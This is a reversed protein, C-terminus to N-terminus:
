PYFRLQSCKVVWGNPSKEVIYQAIASHMSWAYSFMLFATDGKASYAPRVVKALTRAPGGSETKYSFGFADPKLESESAFRWRQSDGVLESAPMESANRKVLEAYLEDSIACGGSKDRLECFGRIREDTWQQTRPRLLIVGDKGISADDRNAFHNLVVAIVERDPAAAVVNLAAASIVLAVVQM